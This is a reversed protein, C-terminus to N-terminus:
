LADVLLLLSLCPGVGPTWKLSVDEKYTYGPGPEANPSFPFFDALLALSSSTQPPSLTAAKGDAWVVAPSAESASIKGKQGRKKAKEGM